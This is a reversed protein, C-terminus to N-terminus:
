GEDAYLLTTVGAEDCEVIVVDSLAREEHNQANVVRVAFAVGGVEEASISLRVRDSSGPELDLTEPDLEFKWRDIAEERLYPAVFDLVGGYLDEDLRGQRDRLEEKLVDHVTEWEGPASWPLIVSLQLAPDGLGTPVSAEVGVEAVGAVPDRLAAWFRLAAFRVTRVPSSMDTGDSFRWRHTGAFGSAHLPFEESRAASAGLPAAAVTDGADHTWEQQGRKRRVSRVLPSYGRYVDFGRPLAATYHRGEMRVKLGDRLPTRALLQVLDSARRWLLDAM